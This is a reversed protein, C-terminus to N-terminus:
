DGVVVSLLSRNIKLRGKSEYDVLGRKRFQNMFLNVRSRTTGVMEALLEQSIDPISDQSTVSENHRALLLLTKALREEGSHFFHGILEDRTRMNRQVMNGLLQDAFAPEARFRRTMEQKPVVVITCPTMTTATEARAVEGALCGEGFFCGADLVAVVAEKGHRSLVSLRVVGEELYMVTTAPDGESFVADGADYEGREVRVGTWNLVETSPAIEDNRYEAIQM